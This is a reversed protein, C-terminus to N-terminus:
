QEAALREACDPCLAGGEPVTQVDVGCLSCPATCVGVTPIAGVVSLGAQRVELYILRPAFGALTQCRTPESM